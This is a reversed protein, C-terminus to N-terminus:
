GINERSELFLVGLSICFAHFNGDHVLHGVKALTHSSSATAGGTSWSVKLEGRRPWHQVNSGRRIGVSVGHVSEVELLHGVLIKTWKPHPSSCLGFVGPVM